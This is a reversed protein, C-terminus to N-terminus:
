RTPIMSRDVAPPDDVRAEARHLEDIVLDIQEGLAAEDANEHKEPTRPRFVLNLIATSPSDSRLTRPVDIEFAGERLCAEIGPHDLTSSQVVVNGVEGRTLDIALRVRGTLDRLAPTAATRNLYCARARPMYALALTNRVVTRDLSGRVADQPPTAARAPTEVLAVLTDTALLRADTTPPAALARLWAADVAQARLPLRVRAGWGGVRRACVLRDRAGRTQRRRRARRRSRPARRPRARRPGLRPPRRHRRWRARAGHPRARDRRRAREVALERVLGGHAAALRRLARAAAPTAPDDGAPRVVFTALTLDVGPTAGLARELAAGDPGEPLAGDTVLVLWARPAFASAERRLLAGTERLAGLLDTGNQMRDPVMEADLASLAERTAPRSMPFLRRVQRDFFLADFRTSPPLAELLRGALDREAALGPLGVSRSRDVLFLVSPPPAVPTRARAEVTVAVLTETSSLKALAASATLRAGPPERPDWSIEWGSRASVHAHPARTGAIM